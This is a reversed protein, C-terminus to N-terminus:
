NTRFPTTVYFSITCQWVNELHTNGYKINGYVTGGTRSRVVSVQTM